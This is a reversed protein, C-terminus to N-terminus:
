RIRGTTADVDIDVRSGNRDLMRVRYFDAYRRIDLVEGGRVRRLAISKAEQPSIQRQAVQLSITAPKPVHDAVLPAPVVTPAALTPGAAVVSLIAAFIFIM